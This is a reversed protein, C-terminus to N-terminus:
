FTRQVASVSSRGSNSDWADARVAPVAVCQRVHRRGPRACWPLRSSPGRDWRLLGRGVCSGTLRWGSYGSRSVGGSALWWGGCRDDRGAPRRAGEPEVAGFAHDFVRIQLRHCHASPDFPALRGDVLHAPTLRRTMMLTLDDDVKVPAGPPVSESQYAVGRGDPLNGRSRYMRHALGYDAYPGVGLGVTASRTTAAAEAADMLATVEPIREDRFPKYDSLWYVTVYDAFVGGSIAVFILWLGAKQERSYWESTRRDQRAM